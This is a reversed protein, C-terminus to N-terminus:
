VEGVGTPPASGTTVEHRGDLPDVKGTPAVVTLQVAVSARSRDCEHVKVIVTVSGSMGSGGSIM